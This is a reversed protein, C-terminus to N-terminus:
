KRMLFYLAAAAAGGLLVGGGGGGGRPQDPFTGPPFDEPQPLLLTGVKVDNWPDPDVSQVGPQPPPEDEPKTPELEKKPPTGIAKGKGGMLKNCCGAKVLQEKWTGSKGPIGPEDDPIDALDLDYRIEHSLLINRSSFLQDKLSNDGQFAADKSRCTAVSVASHKLDWEQAKKMQEQAKKIPLQGRDWFTGLMNQPFDSPNIIPLWPGSKNSNITGGVFGYALPAVTGTSTFGGIETGLIGYPPPQPSYGTPPATKSGNRKTAIAGVAKFVSTGFFGEFNANPSYTYFPGRNKELAAQPYNENFIQENAWNYCYEKIYSIGNDAYDKWQILKKTDIKFKLPNHAEGVWNWLMGCLRGSAPYFTGTDVVRSKGQVGNVDETRPDPYGARLFSYFPFGYLDREAYDHVLSVQILSTIADTGPINGVCPFDNYTNPVFNGQHGTFTKSKAPRDGPAFVYGGDRNGGHWNGKFRPLYLGTWDYSEILPRINNNIIYNDTQSDAQQLSPFHRYLAAKREIESATQNAKSTEVIKFIASALSVVAGAIVGVVPISVGLAGLAAGIAIQAGKVYDAPTQANMWIDLIEGDTLAAPVSYSQIVSQAGGLLDIPLGTPKGPKFEILSKLIVQFSKRIDTTQNSNLTQVTSSLYSVSPDLFGNEITAYTPFTSEFESINTGSFIETYLPSDAKLAVM